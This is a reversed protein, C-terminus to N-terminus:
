RSVSQAVDFRLGSAGEGRGATVSRAAWAQRTGDAARALFWRRRVIVGASPVEEEPLVQGKLEQLVSSRPSATVLDGFSDARPLVAEVLGVQRSSSALRVPIFPVWHPPVETMLRYWVDGSAAAAPTVAAVRLYENQLDRRTGDSDTVIQEVAWVLSAMDDRLFRVEEVVDGALPAVTVAPVILMQDGAPAGAPRYMTWQADAAAAILEHTGFTDRVLLDSVRQISGYSVPIPFTFWDNGYLTSFEVLALRGLDSTTADVRALSLKADEFEWFRNRPQGPFQINTPVRTHSVATATGAVPAPATTSSGLAAGTTPM